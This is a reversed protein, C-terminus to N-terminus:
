SINQLTLPVVLAFDYSMSGRYCSSNLPEHKLTLLDPTPHVFNFWSKEPTRSPHEPRGNAFEHERWGDVTSLPVCSRRSFSMEVVVPLGLQSLNTHPSILSMEMTQVATSNDIRPRNDQFYFAGPLSRTSRTLKVSCSVDNSCVVVDLKSAELAQQRPPSLGIRKRPSTESLSRM